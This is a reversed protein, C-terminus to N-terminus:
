QLYKKRQHWKENRGKNTEQIAKRVKNSKNESRRVKTLAL